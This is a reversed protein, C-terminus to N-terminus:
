FGGLHVVFLFIRLTSHLVRLSAHVLASFLGRACLGALLSHVNLRRPQRPKDPEDTPIPNGKLQRM